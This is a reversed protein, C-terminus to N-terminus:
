VEDYDFDILIFNIIKNNNNNIIVLEKKVQKKKGKIVNSRNTLLRLYNERGLVVAFM